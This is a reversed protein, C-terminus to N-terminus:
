FKPHQPSPLTAADYFTHFREVSDFLNRIIGAAALPSSESVYDHIALLRDMARDSWIIMM